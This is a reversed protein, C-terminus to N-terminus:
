ADVDPAPLDEDPEPEDGGQPLAAGKATEDVPGEGAVVDVKDLRAAVAAADLEEIAPAAVLAEGILAPDVGAAAAANIPGSATPPTAVIKAVTKPSSVYKRISVLVTNLLLAAAGAQVTADALSVDPIRGSIKAVIWIVVGAGNGIVLVTEGQLLSNVKDIFSQIWAVVTAPLFASLLAGIVAFPNLTTM